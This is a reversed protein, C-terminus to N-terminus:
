RKRFVNAHSVTSARWGAYPVSHDCSRMAVRCHVFNCLLIAGLDGWMQCNDVVVMVFHQGTHNISYCGPYLGGYTNYNDIYTMSHMPSSQKHSCCVHQQVDRRSVIYLVVRGYMHCWVHQTNTKVHAQAKKQIRIVYKIYLSLLGPYYTLCGYM